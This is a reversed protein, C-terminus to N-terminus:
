RGGYVVQVYQKELEMGDLILEIERDDLGFQKLRELRQRVQEKSLIGATYARMLRTIYWSIRRNVKRSVILKEYYEVQKRYKVVDIGYTRLLDNLLVKWEGLYLADIVFARLTPIMLMMIRYAKRLELNFRYIELEKKTFGGELLLGYVKRSIEEPVTFREYIMRFTTAVANVESAITRVQVYKLWLQAFEDPVRRAEIVKKVIDTPIEIYEAMSALTGLSPIYERQLERAVEIAQELEARERIIDIETRTFGFKLARELIQDLRRKDIVAYKYARIATYILSRYDSKLPKVQIYRLWYSRWEEAVRYEILAKEIMEKPIVIYEALTALTSPSPIREKSKEILLELDAIRSLITIEIDTFGFEKALDLLKKWEEETIVGYRLARRATSLLSKFDSKVPKAIIYYKWYPIWEEAVRYERLAKEVLEMPITIYEALVALTSPSPIREKLLEKARDIAVELSARRNIISIEIDTFGYKKAEDLLNKWEEETIAGYRLARVATSLLSKFDYKIPRVQIYTKYLPRFEKPVRLEEFVKNIIEESIVMYEAFTALTYPTPIYERSAIGLLNKMVERLFDEEYKSLFAHKKFVSVILDVHEPKVYGYLIRYLLWGAVRQMLYRTRVRSEIERQKEYAVEMLNWYSEDFVLEVERGTIASMTDKFLKNALVFWSRVIEKAEKPELVHMRIGHMISKYFERYIDLVRDIAMRIELLRREHPLWRVPLNIYGTKWRKEDVDWYGVLYSVTFLGSLVKEVTALDVLGEKFLNLWGTRLLTMEDSIVMINEAVTVIPVWAPHLGTAQLLRSFWQLEVEIKSGASSELLKPLAKVLPSPTEYSIGAERFKDAMYLFIGYRSMWRMDIKTPIDAAVDAMLWSDATWGGLPRVVREGVNINYMITKDTFWSFNSYELWKFYINIATELAEIAERSSLKEQITLPDIPKGAGIEEAERAFLQKAISPARFWLMGSLARMYFQWLKEFSPYKFTLLYILTTLDENWGRIWGLRKMVDVGPLVDRQTMRAMESHTPLEFIPSLFIKRPQGFRDIFPVSFTEPHQTLYEIYWKPLGYLKLHASITALSQEIAKAREEPKVFAIVRRAYTILQNETVPKVFMSIKAGKDIEEKLLEGILQDLVKDYYSVVRPVYLHQVNVMFNNAIGFMIGTAFASVFQELGKVFADALESIKIKIKGGGLKSGIFTPELELEVDGFAKVAGRIVFPIITASWYPYLLRSGLNWLAKALGVSEKLTEQFATEALDATTLLFIFSEPSSKKFFPAFLNKAFGALEEGFKFFAELFSKGINTLWEGLGKIANWLTEGFWKLGGVVQEWVWKLGDYVATFMKRPDKFLEIFGGIVEPIKSITEGVTQLGKIITEGLKPLQNIFGTIVVGLHELHGMAKELIQGVQMFKDAVMKGFDSLTNWVNTLANVVVDFQQTIVNKLTDGFELIRQGFDTLAQTIRNWVDQLVATIVDPINQIGEIVKTFWESITKFGETVIQRLQDFAQVVTNWAETIGAWLNNLVDTITSAVGTIGEWLYDGLGKIAELVSQVFGRIAEQIMDTFQQIGSWIQSGVQQLANWVQTFFDGITRLGEQIWRGISEIGQSVWDIFGAVSEQVRSVFDALFGRIQEFWQGIQSLASKFWDSITSGLQQLAYWINEFFGRISEFGQAIADWINGFLETIRDGIAALGQQIANWVDGIFEQLLRPINQIQEWLQAFLQQVSDWLESVMSGITGLAEAIASTINSWLQQIASWLDSLVSSINEFAQSIYSWLSEFLDTLSEIGQRIWNFLDEFTRILANGVEAMAYEITGVITSPLEALTQLVQNIGDSIARSIDQIWSWIQDGLSSLSSLVSDIYNPIQEVYSLVTNITSKIFDVGSSIADLVPKVLTNYVSEVISQVISSFYESIERLRDYFWAQLQGIPDTVGMLSTSLEDLNISDIDISNNDSSGEGCSLM